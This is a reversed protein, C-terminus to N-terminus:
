FNTKGDGAQMPNLDDKKGNWYAFTSIVTLNIVFSMFLTIAAEIHFFNLARQVSNENKRNFSRTLVLASQLYINHLILLSGFLECLFEM